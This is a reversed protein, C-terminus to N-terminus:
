KKTLIQIKKQFSSMLSCRFYFVMSFGRFIWNKLFFFKKEILLDAIFNCTKSKKSLNEPCTDALAPAVKKFYCSFHFVFSFCDFFIKKLFFSLNKKKRSWYIPEWPCTSGSKQSKKSAFLILSLLRLKKLIVDFIFFWQFVTLFYTKWFFVWFNQKRSWYIPEWPCTSGSKQSIKSAFLILSLLRLKKLIDGFIFLLLFVTLFYKKWFFSLIKKGAILLDARVSVHIWKKSIKKSAFLILSLLRLKKLIVDFTFFENLGRWIDPKESFDPFNVLNKTKKWQQM